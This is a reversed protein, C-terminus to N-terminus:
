KRNMVDNIDSLLAKSVRDLKQGATEKQGYFGFYVKLKPETGSPRLAIWDLGDLEYLLMDFRPSFDTYKAIVLDALEDDGDALKGDLERYHSMCAEIMDRGALGERTISCSKEAAYGYLDYIALLEEILRRGGAKAAAAMEAIFMAAAVADKERVDTGLLYGNGEEFGMVFRETGNDDLSKILEAIYKSGTPTEYLNIGYRRCISRALRGSVLSVACFGNQPLTGRASKLALTYEMLLIGIQNGTLITYEGHMDPLAVGLRDSDPDTAIIIDAMSLKAYEIAKDFTDECEPNPVRLTPFDGDPKEQEAVTVVSQFGLETFIRMVPILGTGNLPTYVIRLDRKVSTPLIDANSMECLMAAYSSDLEDGMYMIRDDALLKDLRGANRVISFAKDMDIHDKVDKAAKPELQGGDSGYVKFGNYEPKNHSATIMVGGAASYHRIAYSLMPVPRLRDSLMVDIGATAIVRATIEAFEHSNNRSDYSIVIGSGGMGCEIVSDAFGRAAAAVTYINMRNTGSGMVARLGATGFELDFCFREEIDSINGIMNLLEKRIDSDIGKQNLWDRYKSLARSEEM